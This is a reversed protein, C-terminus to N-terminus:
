PIDFQLQTIKEMLDVFFPNLKRYPADYNNVMIAFCHRKGEPNIAYGAYCRVRRIYGSKAFVKGKAFSNKGLFKLTGSKGLEPLSTKFTEFVETETMKQLITALQRPTVANFGSLGSGDEMFFGQMKVGKKKWLKRVAAAGNKWNGAKKSSSAGVMKLMAEANLNISRHNTPIIIESLPYSQHALLEKRETKTNSECTAAPQKIDINQAELSKKLAQACFLPPNPIAGKITFVARGGPISGRLFKQNTYHTGYIYGQDGSNKRGTKMRNVFSIGEIEPAIRLFKAPKGVKAAPRFFIKYQNQNINLGAAGAGYYNGVDEWNWSPAALQHAFIRADAMIAGEIRKLKYKEKLQKGWDLFLTEMDMASLSRYGLTPDGGGVIYLNGYLVGAKLTGDHLLRTTFSFDKGLLLLASATTILKMTSATALSFNERYGVSLAASDASIVCVGISATSLGPSKQWKDVSELFSAVSVRGSPRHLTEEESRKPVCFLVCSVLFVCFFLGSFYMIQFFYAVYM